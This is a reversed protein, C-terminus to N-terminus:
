SFQNAIIKKITEVSKRVKSLFDLFDSCFNAPLSISVKKLCKGCIELSDRCNECSFHGCPYLTFFNQESSFCKSCILDNELTNMNDILARMENEIDLWWFSGFSNKSPITPIEAEDSKVQLKQMLLDKSHLQSNLYQFNKNMKEIELSKETLKEELEFIKQHAKTLEQNSLRNFYKSNIVTESRKSSSRTIFKKTEQISEKLIKNEEEIKEVKSELYETSTKKSVRMMELEIKLSNQLSYYDNLTAESQSLKLQLSKNLSEKEHLQKTLLDINAKLDKQSKFFNGQKTKFNFYKKEYNNALEVAVKRKDESVKLLKQFDEIEDVKYMVEIEKDKLKKELNRIILGKDELEKECEEKNKKIKEVIKELDRVKVKQEFLENSIKELVKKFDENETKLSLIEFDKTKYRNWVERVYEQADIKEEIKEENVQVTQVDNDPKPSYRAECNKKHESLQIELQHIYADKEKIIRFIQNNKKKSPSVENLKKHLKISVRGRDKTNKEHFQTIVLDEPKLPGSLSSYLSVGSLPLKPSGSFSKPKNIEPLLSPGESDHPM